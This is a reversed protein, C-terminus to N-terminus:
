VNNDYIWFRNRLITYFFYIMICLVIILVVPINKINGRLYNHKKQAFVDNRERWRLILLSISILILVTMVSFNTIVAMIVENNILALLVCIAFTILIAYKPTNRSSLQRITDSFHIQKDKSLGYMFRTAGILSIFATNFLIIIGAFYVITAVKKNVIFEYIDSLPHYSSSLAGYGMVCICVIIILLYIVTTIGISSVMARKTDEKHKSEGSMKVIIDYGNFLFLAIITSLIFSDWSVVPGQVVKDVCVRNAGGAIIGILIVLLSIGVINSIRKSTKIGIYNIICMITILAISFLRERICCGGFIDTIYSNRSLYKTISTIVTMASFVSFLYVSYLAVKGIRDGCADRVSLYETIDSQYRSYIELYSYGMVLSIFSVIMFAGITYKGGFRATRGLIVFVGSGVICGLGMFILDKLDLERKLGEGPIEIAEEISSVSVIEKKERNHTQMHM